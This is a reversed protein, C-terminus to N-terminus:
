TLPLKAEVVAKKWRVMEAKIFDSFETPDSGIIMAGESQLEKSVADMQLATHIDKSLLQVIPAPTKGPAVIGYWNVVEYSPYGSEAITPVDPLSQLRQSATIALARLQGSKVYPLVSVLPGFTVAVEGEVAAVVGPQAGRYPVHVMQIGATINLIEGALHNTTAVGSSSFKYQGPAAKVIQIFDNFSNAPMKPNIVLVFPSKGLLSIPAFDALVDYPPHRMRAPMIAMTSTSGMGIVHGDPDAHAILGAGILGGGGARNDVVMAQGLTKGLQQAILRALIDNGAGPAFPVILRITSRPYGDPLAQARALSPWAGMAAMGFGAMGSRAVITRRTLAM